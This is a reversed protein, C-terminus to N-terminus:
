KLIVLIGKLIEPRLGEVGEFYKKNIKKLEIEIEENRLEELRNAWIISNENSFKYSPNGEINEIVPKGKDDKDCLEELFKNRTDWFSKAVREIKNLNEAIDIHHSVPTSIPFSLKSIEKLSPNIGDLLESYTIKIAM